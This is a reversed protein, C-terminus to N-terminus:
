RLPLKSADGGLFEIEKLPSGEGSVIRIASRPLELIEALLGIVAANAKGREPPATVTVKLRDGIWGVIRNRSSKPVVKLALRM